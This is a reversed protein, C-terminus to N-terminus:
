ARAQMKTEMEPAGFLRRKLLGAGDAHIDSCERLLMLYHRGHRTPWTAPDQQCYAARTEHTWPISQAGGCTPCTAWVIGKGPINEAVKGAYRDGSTLCTQCRRPDIYENLVTNVTKTQRLDRSAQAAQMLAQEAPSPDLMPRPRNRMELAELAMWMRSTLAALDNGSLRNQNYQLYLLGREHPKLGSMCWHVNQWTLMGGRDAPMGAAEALKRYDIGQGEGLTLVTEIWAM